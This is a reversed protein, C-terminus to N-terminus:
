KARFDNHCGGCAQGVPGLLPGIGAADSVGPAGAALAATAEILATDKAVFAPNSALADAKAKTGEMDVTGELFGEVPLKSLAALADAHHQLADKDFAMEGKAMAAIPGIHWAMADMVGQRYKIAKTADAAFAAGALLSVGVLSVAATRVWNRM